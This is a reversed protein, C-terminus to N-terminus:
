HYQGSRTLLLYLVGHSASGTSFTGAETITLTVGGRAAAAAVASAAAILALTEAAVAAAAASQSAALTGAFTAQAVVAVQGSQQLAETVALTLATSAALAGVAPTMALVESLSVSASGSATAAQAITQGVSLSVSGSSVGTAAITQALSATFTSAAGAAATNLTAFALSEALTMAGVGAATASQAATRTSSYTLAGVSAATAVQTEAMTQALALSANTNGAVAAANFYRRIRNSFPRVAQTAAPPDDAVTTTGTAGFAGLNRPGIDFPIAASARNIGPIDFVCRSRMDLPATASVRNRHIDGLTLIGDFMRLCATQGPMGVGANDSSQHIRLKRAQAPMVPQTQAAATAVVNGDQVMDYTTATLGNLGYRVCLHYWVSAVLTGGLAAADGFYVGGNSWYFYWGNSGNASRAGFEWGNATGDYTSLIGSYNTAVTTMKVWAMMTFPTGRQVSANATKAEWYNAGAATKFSV